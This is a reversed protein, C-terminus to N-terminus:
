HAQSRLYEVVQRAEAETLGQNPMPVFFEGLLKKTVPHKQVMGAPNLVMNMVFTPSRRKTVEGLAPGVYREGMKHCAACKQEFIATGTKAMAADVTAGVAVPATVPGIGHELEFPTLGDPSTAAAAAAAASKPVDPADPSCGATLTATALALAAGAM